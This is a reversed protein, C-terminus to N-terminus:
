YESDIKCRPHQMMTKIPLSTGEPVEGECLVKQYRIKITETMMVKEIVVFMGEVLLAELKVVAGFIVGLLDGERFKM